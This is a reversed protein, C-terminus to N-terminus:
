HLHFLLSKMLASCISMSQDQLHRLTSICTCTWTPLSTRFRTCIGLLSQKRMGTMFQSWHFSGRLFVKGVLFCLALRVDLSPGTGRSPNNKKSNQAAYYHHVTSYIIKPVLIMPKYVNRTRFVMLMVAHMNRSFSCHHVLLKRKCTNAGPHRETRLCVAACATDM